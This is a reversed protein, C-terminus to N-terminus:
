KVVPITSYILGGIFGGAVLLVVGTSFGIALADNKQKVLQEKLKKAEDWYSISEVKVEKLEISVTELEAKVEKLEILVTGLSDSAEELVQRLPEPLSEPNREIPEVNSEEASGKAWSYGPLALLLLVVLLFWGNKLRTGCM